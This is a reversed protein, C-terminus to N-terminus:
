DGNSKVKTVFVYEKHDALDTKGANFFRYPKEYIDTVGKKDLIQKIEELSIKNQSSSSKSNYTNNYTVVIYKAKLNVILDSFVQPATARCYESMNEERPKMAVGYLKPKEWKTINELVHYFRSYQRSNYPPDIFAIDASVSRVLQNSDERYISISKGFTNLPKILEFSFEDRISKGKIYADYHGCTNAIRDLSYLLSALLISSEKDNIIGQEKKQQIDERVFGIARADLLSFFKDGYQESVYNDTLSEKDLSKYQQAIIKVKEDDFKENSFFANYIVQNSFLFDNLIIEDYQGLVCKSVTGTGAFVDFFSHCEPCNSLLLESIWSMLKFKNGVYRRSEIEFMENRRPLQIM